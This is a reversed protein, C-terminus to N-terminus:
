NPEYRYLGGKNTITSFQKEDEAQMDLEIAHCRVAEVRELLELLLEIVDKKKKKM